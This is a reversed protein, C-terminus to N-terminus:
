VAMSSARFRSLGLLRFLMCVSIFFFQARASESDFRVQIHIIYILREGERERERACERVQCSDICSTPYVLQTHLVAGDADVSEDAGEMFVSLGGGGSRSVGGKEASQLSTGCGGGESAKQCPTLM